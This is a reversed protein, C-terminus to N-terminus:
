QLERWTEGGDKEYQIAEGHNKAVVLAEMLWLLFWSTPALMLCFAAWGVYGWIGEIQSHGYCMNTLFASIALLVACILTEETILSRGIRMYRKLKNMTM